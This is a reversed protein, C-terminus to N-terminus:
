APIGLLNTILVIIPILVITKGLFILLLDKFTIPLKSSLIYAGTETMFIVQTLALVGIIFRTKTSVISTSIVIPIFMDTFGVITAPAAAHAEPVGLINLYYEFPIALYNFIPTYEVLASFVVGFCMIIPILTITLNVVLKTAEVLSERITSASQSKRVGEKIAQMFKNGKKSEEPIYPRDETYFDDKKSSLPPIRSMVVVSLFGALFIAFYFELIYESLGLLEGCVLWFAVGTATFCSAIIAAERKSYYGKVYQKETIVLGLEIMGVWSTLLDVTARGPLKFLPRTFKNVLTGIFEMLGYEIMLPILILAPVLWISTLVSIDFMVPGINENLVFEFGFGFMVMIFFIGGLIRGVLNLNNTVFTNKIFENETKNFKFYVSGVISIMLLVLVIYEGTIGLMDQFRQCIFGIMLTYGGTEVNKIPILFIILGLLSPILFKMLNNFTLKENFNEMSYKKDM